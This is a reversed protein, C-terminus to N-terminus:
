APSSAPKVKWILGDREVGIRLVQWGSLELKSLRHLLKGVKRPNTGGAAHLAQQLREPPAADSFQALEVATFERDGVAFAIAEILGQFGAAESAVTEKGALDARLGRIEALLERLLANTEDTSM